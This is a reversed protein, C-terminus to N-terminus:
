FTTTSTTSCRFCVGLPLELGKQHHQFTRPLSTPTIFPAQLTSTSSQLHRFNYAYDNKAAMSRTMMSIGRGAISPPPLPQGCNGINTGSLPFLELTKQRSNNDQQASVAASNNDYPLLPPMPRFQFGNTQGIIQPSTLTKRYNQQWPMRRGSSVIGQFSNNLKGQILANNPRQRQANRVSYLLATKQRSNKRSTDVHM